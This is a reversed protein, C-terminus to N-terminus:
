KLEEKISARLTRITEKLEVRENAADLILAVGAAMVVGNIAQMADSNVVGAIVGMVAISLSWFIDSKSLHKM